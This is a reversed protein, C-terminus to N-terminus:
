WAWIIPKVDEKNGQELFCKLAMISASIGDIKDFSKNKNVMAGGSPYKNLVVNNAMWSLVPNNLHNLLGKLVSIEFQQTAEALHSKSQPVGTCDIGEETLEIALMNANHPDYYLSKIDYTDRMMLTHEKIAHYDVANSDTTFVLDNEIWETLAHLGSAVREEVTVEPIWFYVLLVFKADELPFLYATAVFDQSQALDMGMYCTKGKLTSLDFDNGANRWSDTDIWSDPADVWVNCKKTLFEKRKAIRRIAVKSDSILDDIKVSVGINPNAKIYNKPNAWNYIFHKKGNKVTETVEIDEKDLEYIFIAIEDDKYLGDLIAKCDREMDYCPSTLNLGATTIVIQMPNERAGMASWMVDYVSDNRHAHYEDIFTVYPNLGDLTDADSGLAIFSGATNKEKLEHAFVEIKRKLFSDTKAMQKAAKFILKAQDKKTAVSYIEAGSENDWGLCYLGILAMLESKGNKRAVKIYARRFRRTGDKKKWGFLNWLIFCQWPQPIFPKGAWRGKSFKVFRVSFEIVKSAAKEDFFIDKRKLDSFYRDVALKLYKCALIRGSKVDKAYQVASAIANEVETNKNLSM